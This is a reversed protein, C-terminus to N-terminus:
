RARLPRRSRWRRMTPLLALMLGWHGRVAGSARCGCGEEADLAPAGAGAGAFAGAGADGGAGGTGGAGAGSGGAGGDSEGRLPHPYPFPAYGPKPTGEYYDRDALIHYARARAGDEYGEVDVAPAVGDKFANNWLYTPSLEQDTGRGIQDHCPYGEGGAENGDYTSTGNCTDWSNGDNATYGDDSRYNRLIVFGNYSGGTATVTNDFILQSGGRFNMTTFIATAANDFTNGYIEASYPSRFGGSDFGHHGVNTGHVTNHRFVYRAGNYADYAGDNLGSYEFTNDEMYVQEGTGVASPASWSPDGDGIVDVGHSTDVFLNNDILGAGGSTIGIRTQAPAFKNHDVRWGTGSITIPSKYDTVSRSDSFSFGTIRSGDTGDILDESSNTGTGDDLTTQDIGAGQLTVGAPLAICPTYAAPTAWTCSGAPVVVVDGSVASGVVALVDTLECSAAELTAARAAPAVLVLVLGFVLAIRKM